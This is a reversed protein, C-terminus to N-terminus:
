QNIFYQNIKCYMLLFRCDFFCSLAKTLMLTLINEDDNSRYKFSLFDALAVIAQGLLLLALLSLSNVNKSENSRCLDHGSKGEGGNKIVDDKCSSTSISIMPVSELPLFQNSKSILENTGSAGRKQGWTKLPYLFPTNFVFSNFVKMLLNYHKAINQLATGQYMHIYFEKM